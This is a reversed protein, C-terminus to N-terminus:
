NIKKLLYQIIYDMKYCRSGKILVIDDSKLYYVLAKSLKNLEDFYFKEGPFAEYTARVHLGYIYLQNVGIYGAKEGVSYHFKDTSKGLEAMGGYVFLKRGSYTALVDLAAYSSAPNANYTDDILTINNSLKRIYLRGKIGKYKELGKIIINNEIEAAQALAIVAMSNSLNHKGPLDLKYTLEGKPSVITIKSQKQNVFYIDANNSFGYTTVMRDAVLPLINKSYNDDFNIIVSATSKAKKIIELKEFFVDNIMHFGSLHSESINTIISIDPYVINALYSIEGKKSTGIEVIIIKDDYSASLLTLPVGITNNNNAITATTKGHLKCINHLMNKVTTKGNSGTIGIVIATLKNRYLRAIIGLANVTDNVRLVPIDTEIDCSVIISNAGLKIAQDIFDHGDFKKGVIALYTEGPNIIRTDTNIKNIITNVNFSASKDYQMIDLFSIDISM